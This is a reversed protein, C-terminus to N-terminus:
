LRSVPPLPPTRTRVPACAARPTLHPRTTHPHCFLPVLDQSVEKVMMTSLVCAADCPIHPGLHGLLVRAFTTFAVQSATRTPISPPPSSITGRGGDAREAIGWRGGDGRFVGGCVVGTERHRWVLEGVSRTASPPEPYLSSPIM